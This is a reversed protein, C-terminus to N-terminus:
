IFFRPPTNSEKPKKKAGGCMRGKKAEAIKLSSRRFIDCVMQKARCNETCFAGFQGYMFVDEDHRLNKKCFRCIELFNKVEAEGIEKGPLSDSSAAPTEDSYGPHMDSFSPARPRKSPVMLDTM